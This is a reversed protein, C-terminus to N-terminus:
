YISKGMLYHTDHCTMAYLHGVHSTSSSAKITTNPPIQDTQSSASSRRQFATWLSRNCSMLNSLAQYEFRSVVELSCALYSSACNGTYLFAGNKLCHTDVVVVIKALGHKRLFALASEAANPIEELVGINATNPDEQTTGNGVKALETAGDQKSSLTISM